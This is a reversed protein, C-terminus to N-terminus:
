PISVRSPDFAIITASREGDLAQSIRLSIADAAALLAKDPATAYRATVGKVKHGLLGAITLESYNMETAAAAFWHRMGHIPVGEIGARKCVRKWVKPLGVFHGKKGSGPFVFSNTKVSESRDGILDLVSRGIPRVQRGSKTDEFRLCRAERDIVGYTLQLVEERRCGSMLLFRIARLGIENEGENKLERMVRGIAELSAFSFPPKRQNDKPRAVGRAPNKTILGDRVARELITGLMGLTRSAVGAGGRAAGGKSRQDNSGKKRSEATKGNVIDRLFKEMDTPTLSAVTRTGLLPKVHREIRSRDMRSTSPKITTATAEQYQDCLEAVTIADRMGRREAAPDEGDAVSALLKKARKRAEDPTVAGFKGITFRRSTGYANRYQIFWSKAGSPKLRLGFGRLDDDFIVQDAGPSPKLAKVFRQTLKPM